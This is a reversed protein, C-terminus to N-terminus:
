KGSYKPTKKINESLWGFGETLGEGETAIAPQVFWPREGLKSLELKTTITQCDM